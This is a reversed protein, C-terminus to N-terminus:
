AAELLRRVPAPLGLDLAEEQTAWRGGPDPEPRRARPPWTWALTHLTWDFHTLAHQMPPLWQGSGPWGATAADLAAVSAYEPLSWLGSWVGTEPRQLLWVRGGHRLWLLANERRGRQLRRSKVPYRGPEGEARARCCDALPCAACVPRRLTCVTAGLDMMAQAYDGARERPALLAARERIEPKADPLPTEIAHLRAVM